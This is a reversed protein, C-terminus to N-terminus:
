DLFPLGAVDLKGTQADLCLFGSIQGNGNVNDAAPVVVTFAWRPRRGKGCISDGSTVLAASRIHKAVDAATKGYPDGMLIKIAAQRAQAESMLDAASARVAALLVLIGAAFLSPKM